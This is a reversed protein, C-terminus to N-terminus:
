WTYHLKFRGGSVGGSYRSYGGLTATKAEEDFDMAFASDTSGVKYLYFYTMYVGSAHPLHGNIQFSPDDSTADPLYFYWRGATGHYGISEDVHVKKDVVTFLLDGYWEGTNNLCWNDMKYLGALEKKYIDQPHDGFATGGSLVQFVCNATGIHVWPENIKFSGRFTMSGEVTSDYPNTYEFPLRLEFPYNTEIEFDSETFSIVMDVSEQGASFTVSTPIPLEYPNSVIDIPVTLASDYNVRSVTITFQGAGPDIAIEQPNSSNFYVVPSDPNPQPGPGWEDSNCATAFVTMLGICFYAATKIIRNM